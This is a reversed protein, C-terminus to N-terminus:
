DAWFDLRKLWLLDKIVLKSRSTDSFWVKRLSNSSVFEVLVEDDAILPEFDNYNSM